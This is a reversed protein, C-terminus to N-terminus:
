GPDKGKKLHEEERRKEERRKEERRLVLSLFSLLYTLFFTYTRSFKHTNICMKAM